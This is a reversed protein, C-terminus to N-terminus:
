IFTAFARVNNHAESVFQPLLSPDSGSLNLTHVDPTTERSTRDNTDTMFSLNSFPSQRERLLMLLTHTSQGALMLSLSDLM